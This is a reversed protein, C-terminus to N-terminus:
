GQEELDNVWVARKVGKRRRGERGGREGEREEGGEGGERGEGWGEGGRGREGREVGDWLVEAPVGSVSFPFVLHSLSSWLISNKVM